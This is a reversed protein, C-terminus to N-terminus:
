KVLLKRSLQPLVALAAGVCMLSASERATLLDSFGGFVALAMVALIVSCLAIEIPKM